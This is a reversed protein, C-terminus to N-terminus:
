SSSRSESPSTVRAAERMALAALYRLEDDLSDPDRVTQAVEDQFFEYYNERLDFVIKKVHNANLNLAAAAEDYSPAGAQGFMCPRLLTFRSAHGKAQWAAEMRGLVREHIARAFEADLTEELREVPAALVAEDIDIHPASGGRKAALEAELKDRLFNKLCAVLFARFRSERREVHRLPNREHLFVFFDQAWDEAKAPPLWHPRSRQFWAHIPREYLVCLRHLAEQAREADGSGATLVLSWFTAPFAGGAESPAAPNTTKPEM